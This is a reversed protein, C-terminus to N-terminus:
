CQRSTVNIVSELFYVLWNFGFKKASSLSRLCLMYTCLYKHVYLSSIHIFEYMYKSLSYTYTHINICVLYILLYMYINPYITHKLIYMCVLNIFVYMYIHIILINLCTHVYM